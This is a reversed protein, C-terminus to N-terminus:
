KATLEVVTASKATVTAMGLWGGAGRSLQAKLGEECPTKAEFGLGSPTLTGTIPQYRITCKPDAGTWSLRAAFSGADKRQINELDFPHTSAQGGAVASWRGHLDKPLEQPAPQAQALAGAAVAALLLPAWRAFANM